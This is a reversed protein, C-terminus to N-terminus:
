PNREARKLRAVGRWTQYEYFAMLLSLRLGHFGLKWGGLTFYRWIFHKVPMTIFTRPRIAHGEAYRRRIALETYRKQVRHFQEITEYNYHLLHNQLYGEPGDLIVTEHVPHAPDYRASRVHLLRLQYDPYWGAGRTLRGFIINYRPVWWGREPQDLKECIEDALEPTVREDADVFFAWDTEVAALAANRQAGYDQFVHQIVRTGAERAIKVTADTSFSDFVIIQDCFRLSEICDAIHKEENLTLIVGTLHLAVPM